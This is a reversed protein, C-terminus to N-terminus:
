VNDAIFSRLEDDSPLQAYDACYIGRNTGARWSVYAVSSSAPSAVPFRCGYYKENVVPVVARPGLNICYVGKADFYDRPSHSPQAAHRWSSLFVLGNGDHTFSPFKNFYRDDVVVSEAGTDRSVMAIAANDLANVMGDGNTDRRRSLYAIRSGDPAFVPFSNDYANDAIATERRAALDMLMISSADRIDIVGDGNTDRRWSSYVVAAADPSFRPFTSEYEAPTVLSEVGANIDYVYVAGCAAGPKWCAYTLLRGDPSFLPQKIKGEIPLRRESGARLDALFLSAPDDPGPLAGTAALGRASLYALVKGDPSLAPAHTYFRDDIIQYERRAPIDYVYLGTRDQADICGDGTTDRRASAYALYRGDGSFVPPHNYWGAGAILRWNTMELIARKIAPSRDLSLLRVLCEQAQRPQARKFYIRALELFAPHCSPNKRVIRQFLQFAEEQRNQKLLRIGKQAPSSFFGFFM